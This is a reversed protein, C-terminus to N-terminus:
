KKLLKLFNPILIFVTTCNEAPNINIPMDNNIIVVPIQNDLLFRTCMSQITSLLKSWPMASNSMAGIPKVMIALIAGDHERPVMIPMQSNNSLMPAIKAPYIEFITESAPRANKSNPLKEKSTPMIM